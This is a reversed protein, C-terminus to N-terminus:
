GITRGIVLRRQHYPGFRDPAARVVTADWEKATAPPAISHELVEWIYAAANVALVRRSIHGIPCRAKTWDLHQMEYDRRGPWGTHDASDPGFLAGYWKYGTESTMMLVLERGLPSGLLAPDPREGWSPPVDQHTTRRTDLPMLKPLRTPFVSPLVGVGLRQQEHLPLYARPKMLRLSDDDLWDVYRALFCQHKTCIITWACLWDRRQYIARSRMDDNFCRPCYADRLSPALLDDHDAVLMRKFREIGYGTRQAVIELLAPPPAVDWDTAEDPPPLGELGFLCKVLSYPSARGHATACRRLWSGFAEDDFPMPFLPARRLHQPGPRVPPPEFVRVAQAPNRPM